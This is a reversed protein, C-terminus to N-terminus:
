GTAVGLGGVVVCLDKQYDPDKYVKLYISKTVSVPFQAEGTKGKVVGPDCNRLITCQYSGSQNTFVNPFDFIVTKREQDVSYGLLHQRTSNDTVETVMGSNKYQEVYRSGGCMRPLGKPVEWERLNADLVAITCGSKELSYQM